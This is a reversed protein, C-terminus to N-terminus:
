LRPFRFMDMNHPPLEDAMWTMDGMFARTSIDRYSGMCVNRLFRKGAENRVITAVPVTATPLEITGTAM